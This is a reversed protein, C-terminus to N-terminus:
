GRARLSATRSGRLGDSAGIWASGRCSATPCPGARFGGLSRLENSRAAYPSARRTLPSPRSELHWWPDHLGAAEDWRRRQVQSSPRLTPNPNGIRVGPLRGHEARDRQCANSRWGPEECAPTTGFWRNQRFGNTAFVHAEARPLAGLRRRRWELLGGECLSAASTPQALLQTPRGRQRPM